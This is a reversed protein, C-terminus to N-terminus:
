APCPSTEVLPLFLRYPRAIGPLSGSSPQPYGTFRFLSLGHERRTVAVFPGNTAIGSPEDRHLAEPFRYAAIEQFCAPHGRFVRVGTGTVLLGRLADYTTYASVLFSGVAAMPRHRIFDAVPLSAMVSPTVPNAVDLIELATGTQRYARNGALAVSHAPHEYNVLIPRGPRSVDLIHFESQWRNIAYVYRDLAHLESYGVLNGIRRDENGAYFGVVTPTIPSSVDVVHLGVSTSASSGSDSAVYAYTGTVAVTTASPLAYFGIRTPSIPSSVDFIHMGNAGDAVYAHNGALAIDMPRTNAPPFPGLIPQAARAVVTPSVPNSIDVVAFVTPYVYSQQENVVAYVFNGRMAVAFAWGPLQSVPELTPESQAGVAANSGGGAGTAYGSGM